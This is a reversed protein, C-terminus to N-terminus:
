LDPAKSDVGPARRGRDQVMQAAVAAWVPELNTNRWHWKSAYHKRMDNEDGFPGAPCDPCYLVPRGPAFSRPPPARAVWPGGADGGAEAGRGLRDWVGGPFGYVYTFAETDKVPSDRRVNRCNYGPFDEAAFRVKGIYVLDECHSHVVLSPPPRPFPLAPPIPGPVRAAMPGADWM